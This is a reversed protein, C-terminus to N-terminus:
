LKNTSRKVSSETLYGLAVPNYSAPNLAGPLLFPPKRLTNTFFVPHLHASSFAQVGAAVSNHSRMMGPPMAEIQSRPANQAGSVVSTM